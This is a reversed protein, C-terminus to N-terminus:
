PRLKLMPKVGIDVCIPRKALYGAVGPLEEVAHLFSVVAPEADFVSPELLRCLDLQHYIAFDCWFPADGLAFPGGSEEFSLILNRLRRPLVNTLFEEKKEVFTDGTFVNVLPNSLTALEQAAEFLMDAKWANAADRPMLSPVLKACYRNISGSQALVMTSAQDAAGGGRGDSEEVLLVPLQGFPAKATSDRWGSGWASHTTEDVFPVGGFSLIMRASEARARVSFYVLRLTPPAAALAAAGAAALVSTRVDDFGLADCYDGFFPPLDFEAYDNRLETGAAIDVTTEGVVVDDEVYFRLNLAADGPAAHNTCWSAVNLCCRGATSGDLGYVFHEFLTHVDAYKTASGEETSMWVFDELEAASSFTIVQDTPLASIERVDAMPVLSKRSIITGATVAEDVYRGNGAGPIGSARVTTAIRWGQASSSLELAREVPSLLRSTSLLRRRASSSSRSIVRLTSAM